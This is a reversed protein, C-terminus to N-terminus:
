LGTFNAIYSITFNVDNANITASYEFSVNFYSTKPVFFNTANLMNRIQVASPNESGHLV